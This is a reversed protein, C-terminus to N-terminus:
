GRRMRTARHQVKELLEEDKKFQPAWCQVWCQLHPRVLASCLPLLVKRARSGVTRKICGLIGDAKKAGLARQQSMTVRNDGLVGLGEGWLQEGALRGNAGSRLNAGPRHNEAKSVDFGWVAARPFPLLRGTRKESLVRFAPVGRAQSLVTWSFAPVGEAGRPVKMKHECVGACRQPQPSPLSIFQITQICTSFFRRRRQLACSATNIMSDSFTKPRFPGKSTM